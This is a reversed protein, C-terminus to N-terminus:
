GHCVLVEVVAGVVGVGKQVHSFAELWFASVWVAIEVDFRVFGRLGDGAFGALADPRFAAVLLGAGPIGTVGAHVIRQGAKGARTSKGDARVM